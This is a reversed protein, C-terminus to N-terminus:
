ARPTERAGCSRGPGEATQSEAEAKRALALIVERAVKKQAIPLGIFAELAEREPGSVAEDWRKKRERILNLPQEGFRLIHPEVKLWGALVQLKDQTPICTGKLWSFAAQFSVPRGWHRMNFEKELVGPRPEYGAAAMAHKLREAFELKAEM